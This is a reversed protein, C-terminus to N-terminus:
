SNRQFGVKGQKKRMHKLLEEIKEQTGYILTFGDEQPIAALEFEAPDTGALESSQLRLWPVGRPVGQVMRNVYASPSAEQAQAALIKEQWADAYAAGASIEAQSLLNMEVSELISGAEPEADGPGRAGISALARGAKLEQAVHAPIAAGMGILELLLEDLVRAAALHNTM